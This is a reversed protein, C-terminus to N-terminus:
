EAKYNQVQRAGLFVVLLSNKVDVVEIQKRITGEEVQVEKRPKRVLM